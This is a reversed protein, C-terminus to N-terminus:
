RVLLQSGGSASLILQLMCQLHGKKRLYKIHIM